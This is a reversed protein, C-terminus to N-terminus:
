FSYSASLMLHNVNYKHSMASFTLLNAAAGPVVEDIAFDHREFDQYVYNLTFGLDESYRYTAKIDAIGWLSDNNPLQSNDGANNIAILTDADSLQLSGSLKLQSDLLGKVSFSFGYSIIKDVNNVLWDRGSFRASGGLNTEIKEKEMFLGLDISDTVHWSLDFNLNNTWSYQLGIETDSYDEESYQTSIIASLSDTPHHTFQLNVKALDRDAVNFRQLLPNESVNILDILEPASGSRSSKEGSVQLQYQESFMARYKAIFSDDSTNRVSQFRRELKKQKVGFSVSHKSKNRWDVYAYSNTRTLDYPINIVSDGQFQETIVPRYTQMSTKNYRDRYEYKARISWNSNIWHSLRLSLKQTDIEGNLSAQPLETLLNQNTTYPLYPEDQTLRGYSMNLKLFSRPMYSYRTNLSIAVANNDPNTSLRGVNGGANLALFPSAYSVSNVANDFKSLRFSITSFWQEANYIIRASIDESTSDIPMPIYNSRFFQNASSEQIGKKDLRNYDVFYELKNGDIYSFKLGIQDWDVGLSFNTFNNPNDFNATNNSRNWNDSLRLTNSGPNAFPTILNDFKRVPIRQYNLKMKYHGQVGYQSMFKPADTGIRDFENLWYEGDAKIMRVSGSLFFQQDEFGTYNSYHYIDDSVLGLGLSLETQLEPQVPCYECKWKEMKIQDKKDGEFGSASVTSIVSAAITLCIIILSPKALIKNMANTGLNTKDKVM